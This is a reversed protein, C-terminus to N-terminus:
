KSKVPQRKRNVLRTGGQPTGTSPITKQLEHSQPITPKADHLPRIAEPPTRDPAALGYCSGMVMGERGAEGTNPVDPLLESRKKAALALPRVAGTGVHAIFSPINNMYIHVRGALLDNM